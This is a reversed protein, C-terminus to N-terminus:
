RSSCFTRYLLTCASPLLSPTNKGNRIDFMVYVSWGSITPARTAHTSHSSAPNEHPKLAVNNPIYNLKSTYCTEHTSLRRISAAQAAALSSLLINRRLECNNKSSQPRVYLQQGTVILVYQHFHFLELWLWMVNTRMRTWLHFSFLLRKGGAWKYGLLLKSGFGPSLIRVSNLAQISCDNFLTLGNARAKSCDYPNAHGNGCGPNM